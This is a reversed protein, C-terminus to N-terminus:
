YFYKQEKWKPCGEWYVAAFKRLDDMEGNM